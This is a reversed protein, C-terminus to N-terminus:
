HSERQAIEFDNENSSGKSIVFKKINAANLISMLVIGPSQCSKIQKQELLDHYVVSYLAPGPKLEKMMSGVSENIESTSLQSDISHVTASVM